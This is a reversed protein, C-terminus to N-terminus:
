DMDSKAQEYGYDYGESYADDYSITDEDDRKTYGEWFAEELVKGLAGMDADGGLHIEEIIARAKEKLKNSIMNTELTDMIKM